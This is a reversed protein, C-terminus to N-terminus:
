RILVMKRTDQFDATKLSYFYVGSAAAQGASNRGQWIISNEGTVGVGEFGRVMRGAADVIMMQYRQSAPLTFCIETRPNFPNPFASGLVTDMTTLEPPPKLFSRIVVCDVGEIPTGDLLYGTLTLPIIDGNFVTGLTAIILEKYFKLTLDMYGDPGETTCECEAPDMVPTAVDELNSRLVPVGELMLTSPDVETVDFDQAGLIAVPLVGGKKNMDRFSPKEMPKVNLPNPCSTPKIDLSVEILGTQVTLDYLIPSAEGETIQMTVRVELYQGDWTATLPV